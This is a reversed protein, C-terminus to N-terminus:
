DGSCVGWPVPPASPWSRDLRGSHDCVTNTLQPLKKSLIDLGNPPYTTGTVSSDVLSVGKSSVIGIQGGASTFRTFEVNKKAEIGIDCGGVTLDAGKAWGYAAVCRTLADVTESITINVDAVTLQRAEIGYLAAQIDVDTVIARAFPASIGSVFSDITLHSATVPNRRFSSIAVGVGGDTTLRGPGVVECKGLCAIPTLLQYGVQRLTHGNLELRAGKGLVIGYANYDPSGSYCDVDAQLTATEGRPIVLPCSTVDLAHAHTAMLGLMVVGLGLIRISM